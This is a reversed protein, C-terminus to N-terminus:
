DSDSGTGEQRLDSVADAKNEALHRAGDVVHRLLLSYGEVRGDRGNNTDRHLRGWGTTSPNAVALPLEGATKEQTAAHQPRM